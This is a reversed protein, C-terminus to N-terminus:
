QSQLMLTWEVLKQNTQLIHEFVVKIFLVFFAEVLNKTNSIKQYISIGAWYLEDSWITVKYAVCLKRREFNFKILIITFWKSIELLLM